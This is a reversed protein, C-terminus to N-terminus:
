GRCRALSVTGTMQDYLWKERAAYGSPARDRLRDEVRSLEIFQEVSKAAVERSSFHYTAAAAFFLFLTAFLQSVAIKHEM